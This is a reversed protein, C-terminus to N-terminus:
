DRRDAACRWGRVRCCPCEVRINTSPSSCRFGSRFTFLALNGSINKCRGVYSVQASVALNTVSGLYRAPSKSESWGTASVVSSKYNVCWGRELASGGRRYRDILVHPTAKGGSHICIIGISRQSRHPQRPIVSFLAPMSCCRREQHLHTHEQSCSRYTKLTWRLPVLRFTVASSALKSEPTRLSCIKASAHDTSDRKQHIQDGIQWGNHM